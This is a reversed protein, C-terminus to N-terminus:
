SPSCFFQIGEKEFVQVKV